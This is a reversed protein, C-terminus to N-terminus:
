LSLKIAEMAEKVDHVRLISAGNQLAITNLVTTGNLAEDISIDLTQWIMRKRSLGVLIPYGLKKLESLRNLLTFNDNMKKSFGFGPDLIIQTIGKSKYLAIKQDFYDSVDHLIDSSEMEEHITKFDASVHMAIYPVDYKAVVDLIKTDYTGGSIDNIISAGNQLSYEAIKAHFTDISLLAEPFYDTVWQLPLTIRELEENEDIQASGPRTSFAGLDLLKAGENLHKEALFLVEDKQSVRSKRYFSDPTYNVIGMVIPHPFSHIKNNIKLTIENTKM